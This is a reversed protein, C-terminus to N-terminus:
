IPQLKTVIKQIVAQEFNAADVISINAYQSFDQSSVRKLEEINKWYDEAKDLPRIQNQKVEFLYNDIHVPFFINQWTEEQKKRGTSLEFQCAKSKLSHESAIFLMMDHNYVNKYM